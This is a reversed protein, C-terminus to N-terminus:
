SIDVADVGDDLMTYYDLQAKTLKFTVRNAAKNYRHVNTIRSTKVGLKKMDSATISHPCEEGFMTLNAGQLIVWLESRNDKVEYWYNDSLLTKLSSHLEEGTLHIYKGYLRAFQIDAGYDFSDERDQKTTELLKGNWYRSHTLIERQDPQLDLDRLYAALRRLELVLKDQTKTYDWPKASFSQWLVFRRPDNFISDSNTEVFYTSINRTIYPEHFKKEITVIKNGSEAKLKEENEHTVAIESQQGWMKNEQQSNFKNDLIDVTFKGGTLEALTDVFVGKGVGGLGNLQFILPSYILHKMKQSLFLLFNDIMIEQEGPYETHDATINKLLSIFTPFDERTAAPEPELGVVINHYVTKTYKNYENLGGVVSSKIFGKPKTIDEIIDITDLSKVIEDSSSPSKILAKSSINFSQSLALTRFNRYNKMLLLDTPTEVYFDGASSIYITGEPGGNVSMLPKKLISPDYSYHIGNFEQTTLNTIKNQLDKHSIPESWMQTTILLLLEVITDKSLSPDRLLKSVTAQVFESASVDHPLSDPFLDHAMRQKYRNPTIHEALSGSFYTTWVYQTSPAKDNNLYHSADHLAQILQRGIYTVNYATDSKHVKTAQKAMISVLVDVLEDPIPQADSLNLLPAIKTENAEGYGWVFSKGQMVDIEPLAKRSTHFLPSNRFYETPTYIFHAYGKDTRPTYTEPYAIAIDNVLSYSPTSDTDIIVLNDEPIIAYMSHKQIEQSAEDLTLSSYKATNSDMLPTLMGKTDLSNNYLKKGTKQDRKLTLHPLPIIKM